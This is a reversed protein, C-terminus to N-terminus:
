GDVKFWNVSLYLKGVVGSFYFKSKMLDSTSSTTTINIGMNTKQKGAMVFLRHKKIKLLM